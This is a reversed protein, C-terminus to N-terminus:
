YIITAIVITSVNFKRNKPLLESDPDLLISYKEILKDLDEPKMDKLAKVADDDFGWIDSYILYKSLIVLLVFDKFFSLTLLSIDLNM